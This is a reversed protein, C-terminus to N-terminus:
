AQDLAFRLNHVKKGNRTTKLYRNQLLMPVDLSEVERHLKLLV